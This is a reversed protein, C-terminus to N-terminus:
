EKSRQWEQWAEEAKRTRADWEERERRWEDALRQADRGIAEINLPGDNTVGNFARDPATESRRIVTMPVPSVAELDCKRYGMRWLVKAPLEWMEEISMKELGGNAKLWDRINQPYNDFMWKSLNMDPKGTEKIWALHFQLSAAEGFCLRYSPIHMMILTCGSMCADRIEVDDGSEALKQWRKMHDQFIGGPEYYLVTKPLPVSAPADAPRLKPLPIQRSECPEIEGNPKLCTVPEVPWCLKGNMYLGDDDAAFRNDRKELGKVEYEFWSRPRETLHEPVSKMSWTVTVNGCQWVMRSPFSVTRGEEENLREAETNAHAAGTALFLAAVGALLLRKM